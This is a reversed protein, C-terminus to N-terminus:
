RATRAERGGTVVPPRAWFAAGRQMCQIALTAAIVSARDSTTRDRFSQPSDKDTRAWARHLDNARRINKAIAAKSREDGILERILNDPSEGDRELRDFWGSVGSAELCCDMGLKTNPWPVEEAGALAPAALLSTAILYSLFKHIM